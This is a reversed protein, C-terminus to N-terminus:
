MTRLSMACGPRSCNPAWCTAMSLPWCATFRMRCNVCTEPGTTTACATWRKRRSARCRKAWLKWPTAWYMIHLRRFIWPGSACPPMHVSFGAIRYYLDQRFRKERVEQELDRNTAAIVRVDIKRTRSVGLPRIEREQLVRLLKVQFAASTEGIEDLFITGGNAQEFLGVRDEYAGTFAGKKHGFLESELLQDPLAGCNEAVFPKDGRTSNYHISRALLEKGTGSEGTILIPIDYGSFREVMACLANLSSGEARVIRSFDFRSKVVERKRAVEGRLVPEMM